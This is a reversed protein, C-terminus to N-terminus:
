KRSAHASPPFVTASVSSAFLQLAEPLLTVTVGHRSGLSPPPPAPGMVTRRRRARRSGTACEWRGCCAPPRGSSAGRTTARASAATRPGSAWTACPRSHRWGSRRPWTSPRRTRRSRGSATQREDHRAIEGVLHFARARDGRAGQRSALDLAEGAYRRAEDLRGVALHAEGAHILIASHGYFIKTAQAEAAASSWIPLADDARGDHDRAAGLSALVRPAYIPFRGEACLPVAQELLPIALNADGRELHVRALCYGAWVRELPGGVAEAIRM